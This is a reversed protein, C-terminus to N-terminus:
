SFEKFCDVITFSSSFFSFFFFFFFFFFDSLDSEEDDELGIPLGLWDVKIPYLEGGLFFYFITV